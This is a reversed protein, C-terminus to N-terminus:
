KLPRQEIYTIEKLHALFSEPTEAVVHLVRMRTQLTLQALLRVWRSTSSSGGYSLSSTSPKGYTGLFPKRWWIM